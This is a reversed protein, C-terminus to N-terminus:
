TLVVGSAVFKGYQIKPIFLRVTIYTRTKGKCLCLTTGPTIILSQNFVKNKPKQTVRVKFKNKAETQTVCLKLEKHVCTYKLPQM